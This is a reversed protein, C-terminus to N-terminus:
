SGCRRCTYGNAGADSGSVHCIAASPMLESVYRRQAFRSDAAPQLQSTKSRSNVSLGRRNHM